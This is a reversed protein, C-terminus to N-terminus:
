DMDCCEYNKCGKSSCVECAVTKKRRSTVDKETEEENDYSETGVFDDEDTFSSEFTIEKTAM